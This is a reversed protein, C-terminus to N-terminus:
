ATKQSKSWQEQHESLWDLYAPVPEQAQAAEKQAKSVWKGFRARFVVYAWNPHYFRANQVHLSYNLFEQETM